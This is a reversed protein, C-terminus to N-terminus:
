APWPNRVKQTNNKAGCPSFYYVFFTFVMIGYMRLKDFPLSFM